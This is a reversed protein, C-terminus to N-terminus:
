VHARGIQDVSDKVMQAVSKQTIIDRACVAGNIGDM